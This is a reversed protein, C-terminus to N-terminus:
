WQVKRGGFEVHALLLLAQPNGLADCCARETIAKFSHVQVGIGSVYFIPLPPDHWVDFTPFGAPYAVEQGFLRMQAEATTPTNRFNTQWDTKRRIWEQRQGEEIIAVMQRFTQGQTCSQIIYNYLAKTFVRKSTHFFPYAALGEDRTVYSKGNRACGM